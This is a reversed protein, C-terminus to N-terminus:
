GLLGREALSTFRGDYGIILSDLVPIEMLKGAEVLRKSVVLDAHSPELNGSPHNHAVIISAANGLIAPKFVERANVVSANLTGVHATNIGILQNSTSLLVVVFHERDAGSLYRSLVIAVEAPTCVFPGSLNRERILQVRFVPITWVDVDRVQGPPTVHSTFLDPQVSQHTTTNM